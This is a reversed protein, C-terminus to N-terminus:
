VGGFAVYIQNDVGPGFHHYNNAVTFNWSGKSLRRGHAWSPPILGIYAEYVGLVAVLSHLTGRPGMPEGTTKEIAMPLIYDDPMHDALFLLTREAWSTIDDTLSEYVESGKSYTGIEVNPDFQRFFKLSIDTVELEGILDWTILADFIQESAHL